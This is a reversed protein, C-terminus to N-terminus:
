SKLNAAVFGWDIHDWYAAMYSPRAHSHEMSYLPEWTDCAALPAVGASPAVERETDIVDLEGDERQM